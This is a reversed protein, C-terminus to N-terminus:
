MTEVMIWANITVPCWNRYGRRTVHSGTVVSLWGSWPEDPMKDCGESFKRVLKTVMGDSMANEGYVECIQRYIDALKVNRAILFSIVSQIACNAHCEIMSFMKFVCFLIYVSDAKRTNTGTAQWHIFSSPARARYWSRLAAASVNM